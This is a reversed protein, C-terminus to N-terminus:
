LDVSNEKDPCDDWIKLVMAPIIRAQSAEAEAQVPATQPVSGMALAVGILGVLAVAKCITFDRYFVHRPM